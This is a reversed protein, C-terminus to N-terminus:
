TWNMYNEIKRAESKIGRIDKLVLDALLDLVNEHKLKEFNFIM